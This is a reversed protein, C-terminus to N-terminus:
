AAKEQEHLTIASKCDHCIAVSYSDRIKHGIDDLVTITTETLLRHAGCLGCTPLGKTWEAQNAASREALYASRIARVAAVVCGVVLAFLLFRGFVDPWDAIPIDNM